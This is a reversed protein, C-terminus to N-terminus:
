FNTSVPTRSNRRGRGRSRGRDLGRKARNSSRGSSSLGRGVSRATSNNSLTTAQYKRVPTSFREDRSYVKSLDEEIIFGAVKEPNFLPLLPKTDWDQIAGDHIYSIQTPYMDVMSDNEYVEHYKQPLIDKLAPPIVLLLQHNQAVFEEEYFINHMFYRNVKQDEIDNRIYEVIDEILPPFNHPYWWYKPQNTLYYNIIWNFTVLYDFCMTQSLGMLEDGSPFLPNEPDYSLSSFDKLGPFLERLYWNHALSPIDIENYTRAGENAPSVKTVKSAAIAEYQHFPPNDLLEQYYRQSNQSFYSIFKLLSKMNLIYQQYKDHYNILPESLTSLAAIVHDPFKHTFKAFPIRPLFDNGGLFNGVVFDQIGINQGLESLISKRLKPINIYENRQGERYLYIILNDHLLSYYTLDADLGHIINVSTDWIAPYQDIINYSLLDDVSQSNLLRNLIQFIKAEGEGNINHSSYLITTRRYSQFDMMLKWNRITENVLNMFETGPTVEATHFGNTRLHGESSQAKYRRQRQQKIKAVPAVGDVCILLIRPNFSEVIETLKGSLRIKFLEELDRRRYAKDELFQGYQNNEYEGYNFVMQAVTHIIGNMDLSLTDVDRISNTDAPLIIDGHFSRDRASLWKYFEPVGM